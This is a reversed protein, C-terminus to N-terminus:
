LMPQSFFVQTLGYARVCTEGAPVTGRSLRGFGLQLVVTRRELDGLQRWQRKPFSDEPVLEIGVADHSAPCGGHTSTPLGLTNIRLEVEGGGPSAASSGFRIRAVAGSDPPLADGVGRVGGDSRAFTMKTRGYRGLATTTVHTQGSPVLEFALAGGCGDGPLELTVREVPGSLPIKWREGLPLHSHPDEGEEGNHDSKDPTATGRPGDDKKEEESAPPAREVLERMDLGGGEGLGDGEEVGGYVEGAIRRLTWDEADTVGSFIDAWQGEAISAYHEDAAAGGGAGAGAVEERVSDVRELLLGTSSASSAGMVAGAGSPPVAMMSLEDLYRAVDALVPLQDVLRGDRLFGRVRMLRSRRYEDLGYSSRCSSSCTLHYLAIWPQGEHSTLRLLESPPVERWGDRHLKEWVAGGGDRGGGRGGGAPAARRRTWPPEEVLPVFLLPFDHTEMMRGLLSPGLESAGEALYRSLAVSAVATRYASDRAADRLEQLPTRSRVYSLLESAPLPRRQRRLSPNSEEPTGLFIKTTPRM